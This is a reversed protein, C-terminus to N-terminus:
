PKKDEFLSKLSKLTGGIDRWEWGAEQGEEYGKWYGHQHALWIVFLLLLIVGISGLVVDTPTLNM